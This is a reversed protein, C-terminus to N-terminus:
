VELGLAAAVGAAGVEVLAIALGAVVGGAAGGAFCQAVPQGAIRGAAAAVQDRHETVEIGVRHLVRHAAEDVRAPLVCQGRRVVAPGVGIDVVGLRAAQVVHQQAGGQALLQLVGGDPVAAGIFLDSSCVDSSWDRSFRTH